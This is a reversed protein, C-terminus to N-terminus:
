SYNKHLIERQKQIYEKPTRSYYTKFVKIFHSVSQYGLTSALENVNYDNSLLEAARKMKLQIIYANLTMKHTAKFSQNLKKENIGFERAIQPITPLDGLKLAIFTKIKNLQYLLNENRFFAENKYNRLLHINFLLEKLKIKVFHYSHNPLTCSNTIERLIKHMSSNVFWTENPLNKAIGKLVYQHFTDERVWPEDKLLGLYFNYTMKIVLYHVRDYAPIKISGGAGENNLFNHQLMGIEHRYSQNGAGNKVQTHGDLYFFFRIHPGETIFEETIAVQSEMLSEQIYLGPCFISKVQINALQNNHQNHISVFLETDQLYQDAITYDSTVQDLELLKSFIFIQKESIISMPIMMILNGLTIKYM